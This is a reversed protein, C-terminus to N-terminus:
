IHDAALGANEIAKYRHLRTAPVDSAPHCCGETETYEHRIQPYRHLIGKRNEPLLATDPCIKDTDREMGPVPHPFQMAPGAPLSHGSQSKDPM